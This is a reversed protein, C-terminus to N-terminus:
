IDMEGEFLHWQSGDLLLQQQEPTTTRTIAVMHREAGPRHIFGLRELRKEFAGDGAYGLFISDLGERRLFRSFELLVHEATEQMDLAFLDAVHVKNGKIAFAVYGALERGAGAPVAFLGHEVPQFGTYRWNLHAATREGAIAYRDRAALWLRDFRDDARHVVEGGAPAARGLRLYDAARLWANPAIAAVNALARPRVYQAVKYNARIPKIWSRSTAFRRYGVRQLIPLASRNPFGYFFDFSSRGAALLERQIGLAAAATRHARSVSFDVPIGARLDAGAVRVTRPLASACGVVTAPEGHTAVVTDGAGAPNEDHLWRYRERLVPSHHLAAMNEAWLGLVADRQAPAMREVRYAQGTPLQLASDAM